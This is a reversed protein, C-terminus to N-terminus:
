LRPPSDKIREVSVERVKAAKEKASYNTQSKFLPQHGLTEETRIGVENAVGWLNIEMEKGVEWAENVQTAFTSGTPFTM